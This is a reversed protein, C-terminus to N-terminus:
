GGTCSRRLGTEQSNPTSQGAAPTGRGGAPEGSGARLNPIMLVSGDGVTAVTVDSILPLKVPPLEVGPPAVTPKAQGLGAADLITQYADEPLERVATRWAMQHPIQELYEGELKSPVPTQFPIYDDIRCYWKQQNKPVDEPIEPDRWVEGITGTGFYEAQGRTNNQRRVGRYYIFRRGPLVRGRYTNPFHYRVGTTDRWHDYEGGYTAENQVLVLPELLEPDAEHETVVAFGLKQTNRDHRGGIGSM